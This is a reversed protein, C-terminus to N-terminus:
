SGSTTKEKKRKRYERSDQARKCQDSCYLVGSTRVKSRSTTNRKTRFRRQCPENTCYTYPSGTVVDNYIRACVADYPDVVGQRGLGHGPVQHTDEADMLVLTPHASKLGPNIIELVWRMAQDDGHPAQLGHPEWANTMVTNDLYDAWADLTARLLRIALQVETIEILSGNLSRYRAAHSWDRQVPRIHPLEVSEVVEKPLALLGWTNSFEVLDDISTEDLDRLEHVHFDAPLDVSTPGDTESRRPSLKFAGRETSVVMMPRAVLNLPLAATTSGMMEYALVPDDTNEPDYASIAVNLVKNKLDEPDM